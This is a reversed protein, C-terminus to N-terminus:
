FRVQAWLWLKNLDYVQGTATNRALNTANRDASYAAYKFGVAYGKAFTKEILVDLETGYDYGLNDSSFWHYNVSGKAGWLTAGLTIFLDKVGDGPTTTFRDAYGQFPHSTALPTQFSKQGGEGELVEYSLKAVYGGYWGEQTRSVGLEALYYNVDIANPNEGADQQNAFEATYLLKNGGGVAPAGDLRLGFTDTSFRESTTTRFDLLYGYGEINMFPLGVYRGNILHGHVRYDSGDAATNSEGLHRNVNWIFAYDLKLQEVSENTARFADYSVWNQRWLINGVFRHFPAERHQIDQRGYRLMTKPVAEYRVYAQNIETGKPDAVAARTTIGNTNDNYLNRNGVVSVNELQGYFGFGYLLGTGYGLASRLTSAYADKRNPTADDVTEFRYRFAIDAKGGTLAAWFPDTEEALAPGALLAGAALTPILTQLKM